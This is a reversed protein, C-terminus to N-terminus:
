YTDWKKVSTFQVEEFTEGFTIGGIKNGQGIDSTSTPTIATSASVDWWYETVHQQWTVTWLPLRVFHHRVYFHKHLFTTDSFEEMHFFRHGSVNVSAQQINRSVLCHIHVCHPPPHHMEATTVSLTPWRWHYLYKCVCFCAPKQEDSTFILPYHHHSHQFINHSLIQQILYQQERQIQQLKWPFLYSVNSKFHSILSAWATLMKEKWEQTRRSLCLLM